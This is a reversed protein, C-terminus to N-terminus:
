LIQGHLKRRMLQVMIKETITRIQEVRNERTLEHIMPIQKLILIEPIQKHLRFQVTGLFPKSGTLAKRTAERFKKSSFEMPGLEDIVLLDVDQRELGNDIAAVGVGELGKVDVKYKGVKHGDEINVHALLGKAGTLLDLIEFGTRVGNERIEETIMGGVVCGKATVAEAIKLVLTTKGVGPVGTVLINEFL